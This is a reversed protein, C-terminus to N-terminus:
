TSKISEIKAAFYASKAPNILSLKNYMEIAKERKDQKILVEAMAETLVETNINSSEAASQIINEALSSQQPLNANPLKKMSRLWETFSKMQTGLKDNTFVEDTIKIGQSAFYDVTYLPEFAIVEEAGQVNAPSATLPVILPETAAILEDEEYKEQQPHSAPEAIETFLKKDDNVDMEEFTEDTNQAAEENINQTDIAIMESDVDPNEEDNINTNVKIAGLQGEAIDAEPQLVEASIMEENEDAGDFINENNNETINELAPTVEQQTETGALFDEHKNNTKVEVNTAGEIQDESLAASHNIDTDSDYTDKDDGNESQSLQFQLWQANTFYLATKKATKEFDSHGNKKYHLLLLYKVYASYPFAETNKELTDIDMASDIFFSDATNMKVNM